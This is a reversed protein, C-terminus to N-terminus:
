VKREYGVAVQRVSGRSSATGTFCLIMSFVSFHWCFKLSGLSALYYSTLFVFFTVTYIHAFLIRLIAKSTLEHRMVLICFLIM